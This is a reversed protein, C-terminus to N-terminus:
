VSEFAFFPKVECPKGQFTKMDESLEIGTEEWLERVAATQLSEQPDVHGGPFVWAKAFSRMHDARRTM